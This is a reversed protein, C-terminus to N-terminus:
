KKTSKTTRDDGLALAQREQITIGNKGCYDRLLAEIMNAISRNASPRAACLM